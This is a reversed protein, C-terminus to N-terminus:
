HPEQEPAAADSAIGRVIAIRKVLESLAQLALLAFGAPILAKAPWRVLGGADSSMEGSLFSQLFMPWAFWLIIVVMPLLFFVGGFIDVWAQARRSLRSVVLDIRVHGNAKLTYGAGLLFIAGFLYWQIELWANSSVSFAYRMVANGASVLVAVLVLWYVARGVVGNVADIARSIRLLARM